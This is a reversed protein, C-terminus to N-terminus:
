RLMYSQCLMPSSRKASYRYQHSSEEIYTRSKCQYQCKSYIDLTPNLECIIRIIPLCVRKLKDELISGSEPIKTLTM